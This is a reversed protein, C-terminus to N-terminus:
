GKPSCTSRVYNPEAMGIQGALALIRRCLVVDTSFDGYGLPLSKVPEM